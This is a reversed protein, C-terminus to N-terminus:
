KRTWAPKLKLIRKYVPCEPDHANPLYGISILFENIIEGGTFKFRKKFIKRWEELTKPHHHDLWKEFSGFEKQIELIAKANEIAANIKLRNRIISADNMLRNFDEDKYSAVKMINYNHFARRFSDQKKLILRWNLGAQNIELMLRCFLENDDHIPYGYQNDHYEKHLNLEDQPITRIYDCYTNFEAM